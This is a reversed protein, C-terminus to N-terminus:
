SAKGRCAHSGAKGHCADSGTKGCCADSGTKGCCADSGAKGGGAHSGPAKCCCADSGTAKCRSEKCNKERDEERAFGDHAEAGVEKAGGVDKRSASDEERGAGVEIEGGQAAGAEGENAQIENGYESETSVGSGARGVARRRLM